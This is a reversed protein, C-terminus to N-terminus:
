FLLKAFSGGDIDDPLSVKAENAHMEALEIVTPLIDYGVVPTDSIVDKPINPGAITFPVRIGGEM